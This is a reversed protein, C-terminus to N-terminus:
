SKLSFVMETYNSQDDKRKSRKTIQLFPVWTSGVPVTDLPGLPGKVDGHEVPRSTVMEVPSNM